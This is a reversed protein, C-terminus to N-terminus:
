SYIATPFYHLQQTALLKFAEAYRPGEGPTEPVNQVRAQNTQYIERAQASFYAALLSWEPIDFQSKHAQIAALKREWYTTIDIFTNPYSSAYFAVQPVAYPQGADQQVAHNGAFVMAQTVGYGTKIHDPHAEYPMWPDVTMVLDPRYARLIPLLRRAVDDVSYTGADHFGLELQEAVGLLEGARQREARRIEVLEASSMQADPLGAGGDTATVFVIKCSRAALAMLTGAAGIENDDPHPQVCLVTKVDLLSPLGLLQRIDMM